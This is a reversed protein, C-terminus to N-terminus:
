AFWNFVSQITAGIDSLVSDVWSMASVVANFVTVVVSGVGTLVSWMDSVFEIATGFMYSLTTSEGLAKGMSVLGGVIWAIFWILSETM